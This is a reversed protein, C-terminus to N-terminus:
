PGMAEWRSNWWMAIERTAVPTVEIGILKRRREM